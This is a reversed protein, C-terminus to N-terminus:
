NPSPIERSQCIFYKTIKLYSHMSVSLSFIKWFKLNGEGTVSCQFREFKTRKLRRRESFPKITESTESDRTRLM